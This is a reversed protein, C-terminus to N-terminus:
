TWVDELYQKHIRMKMVYTKAEDASVGHEKMVVEEFAANVDKAMNKADGCVFVVAKREHILTFLESAHSRINDQVYRPSDDSDPTDRSFAPLFKHVVGNKEFNEIDQKFLFDKNRHRCGFFLWTEGASNEKGEKELRLQREQLFGIFPAVGTGPGIMIMPVSLDSTPHFHQSTRSFVQIELDKLLVSGIQTTLDAAKDGDDDGTQGAHQLGSTIDDLWGTCLGRRCYLRCQSTPIELVNFAVDIHGPRWDECSSASYPRPQLRPLHELIREVPPQCSPFTYLVDLLSVNEARIFAAYNDAGEKSCLEQLRRKESEDSTYEVLLRLLAKKPPERIDVCNKMVYRLTAGEEPVHPAVVARRKKTDKMVGLQLPLDAVEVVGLRIILQNVENDYNACIVSISDGPCYKMGCNEINLRLLLTKKVADEATLRQASVITAKVIDSSASPPKCDNQWPLEALKQPLDKDPSGYSVTLYAPTAAPLTLAKESLPPLSLRLSPAETSPANLTLTDVTRGEAQTFPSSAKGEVSADGPNTFEMSSTHNASRDPSETQSSFGNVTVNKSTTKSEDGAVPASDSNENLVTGPEVNTRISQSGDTKVDTTSQSSDPTKGGQNGSNREVSVALSSGQDLGPQKGSESNQTGNVAETHSNHLGNVTTQQTAPDTTLSVDSAPRTNLCDKVASFLDEIWPDVVVELGVAEDAFGSPYFRKAGLQALRRDINQANNCFNTYNTDGLGLVTYNMRSLFDDPLTKKNFRRVFKLATDPPEGDGTTSSVLVVCHEKEISFKKDTMSLCHLEPQLGRDTSQQFIEEAIAKAQGTQTAYLLLFRNPAGKSMKHIQM